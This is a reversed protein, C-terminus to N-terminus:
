EGQDEIPGWIEIYDFIVTLKYQDDITGAMMGVWGSGLGSVEKRFLFVDNVYLWLANGRCDAM